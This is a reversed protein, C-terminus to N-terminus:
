IQAGASLRMEREPRCWLTEACSLTLPPHISVYLILFVQPNLNNGLWKLSLSYCVVTETIELKEGGADCESIFPQILHIEICQM